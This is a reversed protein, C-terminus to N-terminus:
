ILDSNTCYFTFLENTDLDKKLLEFIRLAIKKRTEETLNQGLPHQRIIKENLKKIAGNPNTVFLSRIEYLEEVSVHAGLARKKSTMQNSKALSSSRKVDTKITFSTNTPRSKSVSSM